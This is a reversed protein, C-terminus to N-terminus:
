RINVVDPDECGILKDWRKFLLCNEGTNFLPMQDLALDFM